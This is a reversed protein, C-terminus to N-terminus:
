QSTISDVICPLISNMIDYDPTLSIINASVQYIPTSVVIMEFKTRIAM